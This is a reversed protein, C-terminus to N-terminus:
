LLTTANVAIANECRTAFTNCIQNKTRHVDILKYCDKCIEYHQHSCKEQYDSDNEESLAFKRCHDPCPSEEPKCYVRYGTKLYRKADRLKEKVDGCWEKTLGGKELNDVIMEVTYFAASGDAATNDLGQLSKRQSAQRVELIKFLTSRSLPEVNEERCFQTYQSIMTSRTVTRVVNPMEMTKGNDLKLIRSGYSVDQYFYPRNIFEVFHDVKSMDVRKRHYKKTEPVTGPGLTKAHCRAKHIQRTSLKEYPLHIKKLTSISYKYAYLSLIQTKTNRNNANKYANMLTKVLDDVRTEDDLKVLNSSAMAEFLHQGNNPAIVNCVLMCDETAKQICHQQQKVSISNWSNVQLDLPERSCSTKGAIDDMATNYVNLVDKSETNGYAVTEYIGPSWCPSLVPSNLSSTECFPSTLMQSTHASIASKACYKAARFYILFLIFTNASNITVTLSLFRLM